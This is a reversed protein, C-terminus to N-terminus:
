RKVKPLFGVWRILAVMMCGLGVGLMNAVGDAWQASRWTTLGQAWEVGWGMLSLFLLVRWLCCGALRWLIAAICYIGFHAWKDVAVGGALEKSIPAVQSMPLLCMVVVAVLWLSAITRWKKKSIQKIM